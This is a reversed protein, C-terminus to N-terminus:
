QGERGIPQSQEERTLLWVRFIQGNRDLVYAAWAGASPLATPVIILNKRNRILAGPALTAQIGNLTVAMEQVHQIYGRQADTPFSRPQALAAAALLLTPLMLLYARRTAM